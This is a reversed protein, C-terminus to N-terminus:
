DNPEETASELDVVDGHLERLEDRTWKIPADDGYIHDEQPILHIAHQRAGCWCDTPEHPKM